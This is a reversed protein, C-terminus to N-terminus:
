EVYNKPSMVQELDNIIAKLARIAGQNHKVEDAVDSDNKKRYTDIHANCMDIFIKFMQPNLNDKLIKRTEDRKM